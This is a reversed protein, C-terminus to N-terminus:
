HKLILINLKNYIARKTEFFYAVLYNININMIEYNHIVYIIIVNFSSHM